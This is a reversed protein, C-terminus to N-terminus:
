PWPSAENEPEADTTTSTAEESAEGEQGNGGDANQRHRLLLNKAANVDQDWTENCETCTHTLHVAADFKQLSGCCNCFLTNYMAPEAATRCRAGIEIRLSSTAARQRNKRVPASLDNDGEPEALKAVKRLDFEDLVVMSYKKSLQSAFIRYLERRHGLARTREHTEWQLLHLDQRRWADALVLAEQEPEIHVVNVDIFYDRRQNTNDWRQVKPIESLLNGTVENWLPALPHSAPALKSYYTSIQQVGTAERREKRSLKGLLPGVRKRAAKVEEATLTAPEYPVNNIQERSIRDYRAVEPLGSEEAWRSVFKAYRDASKWLHMTKVDAAMWEPLEPISHVAAIAAPRFSDLYRDRIARLSDAHDLRDLIVQPLIFERTEGLEDVVMAVRLGEPRVRWGLNIAAVPASEPMYERAVSAAEFVIQLEYRDNRAVRRRVVVAGKITADAPLPRHLIMPFKAWIARRKHDSGVRMHVHTKSARRGSRTKWHDEHLADIRLLECKGSMVDATSAGGQIQVGVRGNGDWRGFKPDSRSKRAAEIAAEVLLYSGWYVGCKARAQRVDEHAQEESAEIAAVLVPDNKLASRIEAAKKRLEKLTQVLLKAQEAANPQQVRSRSSKRAMKIVTRVEELRAGVELIEATVGSLDQHAGTIERYRNRRDLEINILRNRYLRALFIQKDVLERNESPPLCGYTYVRVPLTSTRRKM